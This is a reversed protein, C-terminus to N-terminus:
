RFLKDGREGMPRIKYCMYSIRSKIDKRTSIRWLFNGAAVLNVAYASCFCDIAKKGTKNCISMTFLRSCIVGLDPHLIVCAM